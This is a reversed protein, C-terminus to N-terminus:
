QCDSLSAAPAPGAALSAAAESLCHRRRRGLAAAAAAAALLAVSEGPSQGATLRGSGQCCSSLSQCDSVSDPDLGASLTPAAWRRAQRPRGARAGVPGTGRASLELGSDMVTAAAARLESDTAPGGRRCDPVPGGSESVAAQATVTLTARRSLNGTGAAGASHLSWAARRARAASDTPGPAPTV